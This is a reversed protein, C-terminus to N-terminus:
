ATQTKPTSLYETLGPIRKAFELTLLAYIFDLLRWATSGTPFIICLNRLIRASYFYCMAYVVMSVCQVAGLQNGNANGVIYISAVLAFFVLAEVGCWGMKRWSFGEHQILISVLLGVVFNAFLLYTMAFVNNAIPELYSAVGAAITLLLAKPESITKM